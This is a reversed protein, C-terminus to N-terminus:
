FGMLATMDKDMQDFFGKPPRRIKGGPLVPLHTVQTAHTSINRDFYYVRSDDPNIIEKKTAVLLGNIIHDSHTEIIFQVGTKASKCILEMLKAQGAPHIHSEPNEILLLGDKPTHLAAVIIPLVYSVGFGVNMAKFKDTQAAGEGRSFSYEVKYSDESVEDIYINNIDPCIEQLWEIVQFILGPDADKDKTLSKDSVQEKKNYYLYHAVLECRGEKRSMQNFIEVLATDKEYFMVPGIRFASIYQFSNNFISSDTNFSLDTFHDIKHKLFTTFDKGPRTTLNLKNLLLGARTPRESVHTLEKWSSGEAGADFIFKVVDKNKQKIEFEIGDTEALMFVADKATGIRCLDGTLDLGKSLLNKIHSQRLLLISQMASSKGMGNFGTLININSLELETDKHSKFNKIHLSTIM